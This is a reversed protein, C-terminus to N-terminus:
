SAPPDPRALLLIAAIQADATDSATPWQRAHVAGFAVIAHLWAQDALPAAALETLVREAGEGLPLLAARRAEAALRAVVPRSARPARTAIRDIRTLVRRRARAVAALDMGSLEAVARHAVWRDIAAHASAIMRRDAPADEGVAYGMAVAIDHAADSVEASELSALLTAKGGAALAAIFGAVPSTVAAVPICGAAQRRSGVVFWGRLTSRIHTWEEAAGHKMERAPDLGPLITGVVGLAHGATALKARLRQQVALLKEAAAPPRIAYVAVSDHMSGLRNVRGVRQELRAPNWPLDLHVVVSADQLNVGESLLDTAILLDIRQSQHPARAGQAVPAFRALAERRSIAGGSVLAGRAGLMAVGADARLYRFLADITEASEAFAVVREGPHRARIARIAAAREVDPDPTADITRLAARVATEHRRVATLLRAVDRQETEASSAPAVLEAFALQVTADAYTWAAIEARSPYRGTELVAGLAAARSLRRRLTARLAARSSAWRRVLSYVLLAGGDGGDSPPVPPPLELLTALCDDTTALEVWVPPAVAPLGAEELRVDVRSRRVVYRALEADSMTWAVAGLFLALQAALDRRSNQVPTASLLLVRARACTAALAAHRKTAPTRVHHAEDVIVLELGGAGSADVGAGHRSLREFSILTAVRGVHALASTWMSLLAAPAVIAFREVRHAVALAVYTKGLGVADALMAGGAGDIIQELREVAELQHPRLRISGIREPISHRASGADGLVARAIAARVEAATTAVFPRSPAGRAASM